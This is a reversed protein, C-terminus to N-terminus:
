PDDAAVVAVVPRQKLIAPEVAAINSDKVVVIGDAEGIAGLVDDLRAAFPDIRDVDFVQGHTARAHGFRRHDANGMRLPLLLRQENDHRQGARGHGCLRDGRIQIALDGFPPHRIIDDEDIREAVPM